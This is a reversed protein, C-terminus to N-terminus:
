DLEVGRTPLYTGVDKGTLSDRICVTDYERGFVSNEVAYYAYVVSCFSNKTDIDLMRFAPTIYLRPRNNTIEVKYFAGERVLKDILEKRQAQTAPTQDDIFQLAWKAKPAPPPTPTEEPAHQKGTRNPAPPRKTGTSGVLAPIVVSILIFVGLCGLAVMGFGGGSKRKKRVFTEGCHPCTPASKAVMGGCTPCSLLNPNAQYFQPQESM